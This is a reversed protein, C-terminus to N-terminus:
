AQLTQTVTNGLSKVTAEVVKIMVDIPLQNDKSIIPTGKEDLVMLQVIKSLEGFNNGEELSALRMFTEMDQRDWIYYELSEGYAEVIKPDDIVIKTLQPKTALQQLKM